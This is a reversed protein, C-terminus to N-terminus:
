RHIRFVDSPGWPSSRQKTDAVKRQLDKLDREWDALSRDIDQRVQENADPLDKGDDGDLPPQIRHVPLGLAALFREM